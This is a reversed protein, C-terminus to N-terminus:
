QVKLPLVFFSKSNDLWRLASETKGLGTQGVVIISENRNKYTWDQLDNWNATPNDKRWHQLINQSLYARSKSEIEYHGSAAYDIRNLLGKLMVFEDFINPENAYSLRHGLHNKLYQVRIKTPEQPHIPFNLKSYDFGDFEKGLAM